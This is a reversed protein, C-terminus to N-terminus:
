VIYSRLDTSTALCTAHKGLMQVMNEELDEKSSLGVIQGIPRGSCFFVITPTGMVGYRAAISKNAPTELVNLKVFRMKSGLEFAIEDFIPTLVMCYQCREHWFYVATLQHSEDVEKKWNEFSAEIYNSM